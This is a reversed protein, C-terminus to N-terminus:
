YKGNPDTKLAYNNFLIVFISTCFRIIKEFSRTLFFVKLIEDKSTIVYVFSTQEHITILSAYKEWLNM